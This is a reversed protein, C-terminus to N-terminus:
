FTKESQYLGLWSIDKNKQNKALISPIKLLICKFLGFFHQKTSFGSFIPFVVVKQHPLGVIPPYFLSLM